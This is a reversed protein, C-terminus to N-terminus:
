ATDKWAIRPDTPVSTGAPQPHRARAALRAARRPARHRHRPPRDDAWAMVRAALPMVLATGIGVWYALDEM